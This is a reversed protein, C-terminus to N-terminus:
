KVAPFQLAVIAGNFIKPLSLVSRDPFL